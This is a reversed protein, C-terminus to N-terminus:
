QRLSRFLKLQESTLVKPMEGGFYSWSNLAIAQAETLELRDIFPFRTRLSHKPEIFLPKGKVERVKIIAPDLDDMATGLATENGKPVLVEYLSNNRSLEDVLETLSTRDPDYDVEVVERGGWHGIRSSVLGSVRGLTAEGTWYCFMSFTATETATPAEDNDSVGEANAPPGPLLAWAAALALFVAVPRVSAINPMM